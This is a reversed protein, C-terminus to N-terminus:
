KAALKAQEKRENHLKAAADILAHAENYCRLALALAPKPTGDAKLGKDAKGQLELVKDHFRDPLALFGARGSITLEKGTLAAFYAGVGHFNNHSAELALKAFGAQASGTRAAAGVKGKENSLALSAAAGAQRVASLKRETSTDGELRIIVNQSVECVESATEVRAAVTNSM